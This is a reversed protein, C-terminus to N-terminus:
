LLYIMLMFIWRMITDLHTKICVFFRIWCCMIAIVLYLINVGCACLMINDRTVWHEGISYYKVNLTVLDARLIRIFESVLYDFWLLESLNLTWDFWFLLALLGAYWSLIDATFECYLLLLYYVFVSWIIDVM